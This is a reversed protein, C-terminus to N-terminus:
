NKAAREIFSMMLDGELYYPPSEHSLDNDASLNGHISDHLRGTPLPFIGGLATPERTYLGHLCAAWAKVTEHRDSWTWCACCTAWREVSSSVVM